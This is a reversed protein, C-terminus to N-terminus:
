NSSDDEVFVFMHTEISFNSDGNKPGRLGEGGAGGFWGPCDVETSDGLIKALPVQAVRLTHNM